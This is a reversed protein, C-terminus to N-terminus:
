SLDISRLAAVVRPVAESAPLGFRLWTENYDFTRVLIGHEALQVAARQADTHAVLTFLPTAGVITLRADRLLTQMQNTDTALRKRANKAWTTDSLAETAITIAPGSVAWPGLWSRIRGIDSPAGIAFGLRLGALGYFKGFSRLVLIGPQGALPALSLAPDVDAFAEDVVMLGGHGGVEAAIEALQSTAWTRGDPNNPNVVVIIRCGAARADGPEHLPVIASGEQRWAIAHESYTPAVVGVRQPTRLRSALQILLQTGPGAVIDTAEPVEYTARAAALLNQEADAQPLQTWTADDPRTFPFAVPNIGTSLDIWGGNPEGFRARAASINGGHNM